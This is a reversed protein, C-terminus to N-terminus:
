HFSSKFAGFDVGGGGAIEKARAPTMGMEVLDYESLADGGNINMRKFAAKLQNDTHQKTNQAAALFESYKMEGSGDQNIADFTGRLNSAGSDKMLLSFEEFSITGSNDKDITKFQEALEDLEATSTSFSLALLATRKLQGEDKFTKLSDITMLSIDGPSFTSGRRAMGGASAKGTLWPHRLGDAATMRQGPNVRLLKMLFDSTAEGLKMTSYYWILYEDFKAPNSAHNMISREVEANRLGEWPSMGTLVMHCVVGLSWLDSSVSYPLCQMVEPAKFLLSGCNETMADGDLSARAFGFDILKLTGEGTGPGSFVFNELKLDRHVVGNIHLYNVGSLMQKTYRRAENNAFRSSASVPFGTPCPEKAKADMVEQLEKGGCLEMVLHLDDPGRFIDFVKIVNPHDFKKMLEVERKMLYVTVETAEQAKLSRLNIHKMARMAGSDKHRVLSVIGFNGKGIQNEMQYLDTYVSGGSHDRVLAQTAQSAAGKGNQALSSSPIIVHGLANIDISSMRRQSKFAIANFDIELQQGLDNLKKGLGNKLDDYAGATQINKLFDPHVLLGRVTEKVMPTVKDSPYVKKWAAPITKAAEILWPMSDSILQLLKQKDGSTSKPTKGQSSLFALVPASVPFVKPFKASLGEVELNAMDFAGPPGNGIKKKRMRVPQSAAPAPNCGPAPTAKPTWRKKAPSSTPTISPAISKAPSNWKSTSASLPERQDHPVSNRRALWDDPAASAKVVQPKTKGFSPQPPAPGTDVTVFGAMDGGFGEVFDDGADAQEHSARPSKQFSTGFSRNFGPSTASSRRSSASFNVVKGHSARPEKKM